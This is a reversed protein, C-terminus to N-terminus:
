PLQNSELVDPLQDIDTIIATPVSEDVAEDNWGIGRIWVTKCGLSAAPVIDKTYSDGVVVVEAPRLHLADIGLQFIRPNPKRVGVVSSEIVQQFYTDLYFDRLITNINGYFNSVLVMPYNRSLTQLVARSKQLVNRVYEYCYVAIDEAKSRRTAEDTEWWGTDLLFSTQIKLKVRLLDLFTYDPRILPFKALSREGHVYAKRYLEKQVDVKEHQYGEWIVESWHKSNTDLTGGYDFIVGKCNM